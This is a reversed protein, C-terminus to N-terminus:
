REKGEAPRDTMWNSHVFDTGDGGVMEEGWWGVLWGVLWGFCVCVRVFLGVCMFGAGVGKRM